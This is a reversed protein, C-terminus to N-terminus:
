SPCPFRGRIHTTPVSAGHAIGSQAEAKLHARASATYWQACHPALAVASQGDPAGPRAFGQNAEFPLATSHNLRLTIWGGLGMLGVQTLSVMGLRAYIFGAGAAALTFCATSTFIRMWQGGLVVPLLLFLLAALFFGVQWSRLPLTPM